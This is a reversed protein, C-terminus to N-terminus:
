PSSDDGLLEEIRARHASRPFARYFRYARARAEDRRGLRLLAEVAIVEREQALTGRPFRAAHHNALSLAVLPNAALADQASQLLAVESEGTTDLAAPAAGSPATPGPPTSEAVPAGSDPLAGPAVGALVSPLGAPAPSPTARAVPPPAKHVSHIEAYGGSAVGLTVLAIASIKAATAIKLGAIAAGGVGVGPAPGGHSPGGSAGGLWPGLRAGISEVREEGPLEARAARVLARVESSSGSDPDILRTPDTM